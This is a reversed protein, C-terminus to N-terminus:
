IISINNKKCFEIADSHNNQAARRIYKVGLEKDKVDTLGTYLINGANYMGDVLGNDAAKKFYKAAESYNKDVGTGKFLCLGYKLQAVPVEDSADAVEKFLQAARREREEETYSTSILRKYLYYGVFYKAKLDGLKAYANFCKYAMELNGNTSRHTSAAEKMSMYNFEAFNIIDNIKYPIKSSLNPPNLPEFLNELTKFMETLTPRFEPDAGVAKRSIDKYEKPLGSFETFPERYKEKDVRNKIEMIDDLDKYPIRQEALEWLLIGFSYVECKTNYKNNNRYLMEPAAYRVTQLSVALKRTDDRFFRSFSFNTIKATENETILINEPRIDRHVIEVALLFNLGRAIDVAISLKKRVDIPGDYRNYFERLNGCEAWESVLYCRESDSILGHFQIIQQCDKLKTLIAVQNRFDNKAKTTDPEDTVYKFAVAKNDILRLYKKVKKGRIEDTEIFDDIKLSKNQVEIAQQIQERNTKSDLILKKVMNIENVNESINNNEDTIGGGIKFLYQNLEELDNDIIEKEHETRSKINDTNIFNLTNICSDFETTLDYFITQVSKTQSYKLLGKLQTIESIFTKMKQINDSLKQITVFNQKNFFEKYEDKYAKLLRLSTEVAVIREFLSRSIHKNHEASQYIPTIEGTVNIIDIIIQTFKSFPVANLSPTSQTSEIDTSDPDISWAACYLNKFDIPTGEIPIERNGKIVYLTIEVLDKSAQTIGFFQIINDHNVKTTYKVERIFNDFSYEHDYDLTKLAVMQKKDKSYAKFVTGSGGRGIRTKDEFSAYEFKQGFAINFLDKNSM